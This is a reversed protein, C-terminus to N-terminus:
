KVDKPMRRKLDAIWGSVKKKNGMNQMGKAAFFDILSMYKQYHELAFDLQYLYVDALIALNLHSNADNSYINIAKLYARKASEFEGKKRLLMGKLNFAYYNESNISISQQIVDLAQEINGQKQYLRALRYSPGSFSLHQQQLQQYKQIAQSNNNQSLYINVQDYGQILSLPLTKDQMPDPLDVIISPNSGETQLSEIDNQNTKTQQANAQKLNNIEDQSLNSQSNNVSACSVLTLLVASLILRNFCKFILMRWGWWNKMRIM